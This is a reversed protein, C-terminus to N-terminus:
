QPMEAEPPVETHEPESTVTPETALATDVTVDPARVPTPESIVPPEPVPIPIEPVPEAVVQPPPASEVTPATPAVIPSAVPLPEPEPVQTVAPMPESIQGPQVPGVGAGGPLPVQVPPLSEQIVVSPEPEAPPAMPPPDDVPTEIPEPIIETEPIELVPEPTVPPASVPTQPEREPMQDPPRETDAPTETEEPRPEPRPEEFVPEPTAQPAIIPPPPSVPVTPASVSAAIVPPPIPTVVPVPSVPPSVPIAPTQPQTPKPPLPISGPASVAPQPLPVVLELPVCRNSPPAGALIALLLEGAMKGRKRESRRAVAPSAPNKGVPEDDHFVAPLGGTPLGLLITPGLGALIPSPGILMGPGYILGALGDHNLRGSVIRTAASDSSVSAVVLNYGASALVPELGAILEGVDPAGEQLILGVLTGRGLRMNRAMRNPQYGSQAIVAEVRQRTATSIRYRAAQGNIVMSVTTASVGAAFAIDLITVSRQNTITEIM